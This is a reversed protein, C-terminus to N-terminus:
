LTQTRIKQQLFHVMWKRSSTWPCTLVQQLNRRCLSGTLAAEHCSHIQRCFHTCIGNVTSRNVDERCESLIITNNIGHVTSCTLMDTPPKSPKINISTEGHKFDQRDKSLCQEKSGEMWETAWDTGIYIRVAIWAPPFFVLWETYYSSAKGAM